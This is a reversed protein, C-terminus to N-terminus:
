SNDDSFAGRIRIQSLTKLTETIIYIELLFKWPCSCPRTKSIERITYVVNFIAYKLENNSDEKKLKRYKNKFRGIKGCNLCKPGRGLLIWFTVYGILITKTETQLQKKLHQHVM